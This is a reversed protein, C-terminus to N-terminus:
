NSNINKDNENEFPPSTISPSEGLAHEYYYFGLFLNYNFYSSAVFSDERSNSNLQISILKLSHDDFDNKEQALAEKLM